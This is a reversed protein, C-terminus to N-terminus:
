GISNMIGVLPVMLSILMLGITIMLFGTLLPEVTGAIRGVYKENNEKLNNRIKEMVQDLMGSREAPMLMRNNIPDYLKEELAVQAFSLGADMKEACRELKNRLEGEKVISMSKKLADDQMEGGAMYM